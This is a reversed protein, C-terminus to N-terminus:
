ALVLLLLLAALVYALYLNPSGSQVIAARHAAARLARAAPRYLWDDVIFRTPNQYQMRRVFFRSQPHADVDLRHAPRYFFDFVRTFPNAFATATYEMRATQLLRGCGWTEYRRPRSRAGAITLLVVPIALGAVLALAVVPTSLSAFDDALRLTLWAGLTVPTPAAVLTAAVAAIGPVVTSAGLGLALCAVVTALMAWRMTAPAETAAAASESRPLALFTIGFAKVFCAVALGAALALAALALAFALNLAPEVVRVNQLLAQFTLWESVFGNLPPLAAIALSGAFFCAATWPQRKILGGLADMDRTGTAKQVSGAAMFLLSKFAAHNVAHYLAAALALLALAPLGSASFAVAAGVGMLVIGVNDISSFALLRKLDRDVLAYLVGIVASLAGLLLLTVGWWAPAPGLWTFSARVVGYVGLKIMVGSMLASVHSPAAPHALPLWVHLPVAGAKAVFGLALLAWALSRAGPTLTPAAATWDAFRVSGTWAGLLLMGALVCALGAHTMVAYVWGAHASTQPQRGARAGDIVLLYSALSMLEWALAFTMVNAALPVVLMAAVFALYALCGRREGGAYGLAYVSVPVATAGVLALFLGALPDLQLALGGLPVLWGVRASGGVGLMGAVGAVAAAGGLLATLVYVIAAM